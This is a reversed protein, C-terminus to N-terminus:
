SQSRCTGAAFRRRAITAGWGDFIAQTIGLLQTTQDVRPDRRRDDPDGLRAAVIQGNNYDWVRSTSASSDDSVDLLISTNLRVLICTSEVYRVSRIRVDRGSLRWQIVGKWQPSSRYTFNAEVAALRYSLLLPWEGGIRLCCTIISGEMNYVPFYFNLYVHKCVVSEQRM